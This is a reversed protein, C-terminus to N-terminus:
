SVSLEINNTIESETTNKRIKKFIFVSFIVSFVLCLCGLLSIPLITCSNKYGSTYANIEKTILTIDIDLESCGKIGLKFSGNNNSDFVEVDYCDWDEISIENCTDDIYKKCHKNFSRMVKPRFLGNIVTNNDYCNKNMVYKEFASECVVKKYIGNLEIINSIFVATFFLICFCSFVIVPIIKVIYYNMKCQIIIM